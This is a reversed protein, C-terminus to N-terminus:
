SLAVTTDMFEKWKERSESDPQPISGDDNGNYLQWVQHQLFRVYELTHGLMSVTDLREGNPVLCQLLKIRDSFRERRTRAAISQPDTATGHRRRMKPPPQLTNSDGSNAGVSVSSSGARLKEILDSGHNNKYLLASLAAAEQQQNSAPTLKDLPPSGASQSSSSNNSTRATSQMVEYSRKLNIIPATAGTNNLDRLQTKRYHDCTALFDADPFNPAANQTSSSSKFGNVIEHPLPLSQVGSASQFTNLPGQLRSSTSTVPWHHDTWSLRRHQGTPSIDSEGHLTNVRPPNSSYNSNHESSDHEHGVLIKNCFSSSNTIGTLSSELTSGSNDSTQGYSPHNSFSAPVVCELYDKNGGNHHVGDDYSRLPLESLLMSSFNEGGPSPLIQGCDSSAQDHGAWLGPNVYQMYSSDQDKGEGCSPYPLPPLVTVPSGTSFSVTCGSDHSTSGSDFSANRHLGSPFVEQQRNQHNDQLSSVMSVMNTLEDDSTLLGNEGAYGGCATWLDDQNFASSSLHMKLADHFPPAAPESLAM